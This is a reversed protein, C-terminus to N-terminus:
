VKKDGVHCHWQQGRATKDRVSRPQGQQGGLGAMGPSPVNPTEPKMSTQTLRQRGLWVEYCSGSGKTMHLREPFTGYFEHSTKNIATKRSTWLSGTSNRSQRQM